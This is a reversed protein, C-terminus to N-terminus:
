QLSNSNQLSTVMEQYEPINAFYRQFLPDLALQWKSIGFYPDTQEVSIAWAWLADVDGCEAMALALSQDMQDRAETSTSSISRAMTTFRNFAATDNALCALYAFGAYDSEPMNSGLPLGQALRDEVSELATIAMQQSEDERDALNLM